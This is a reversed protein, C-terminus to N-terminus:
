PQDFLEERLDVRINFESQQTILCVIVIVGEFILAYYSRLQLIEVHRKIKLRNSSYSRYVNSIKRFQRKIRERRFSLDFDEDITSYHM